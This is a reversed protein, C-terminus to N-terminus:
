RYRPAAVSQREVLRPVVVARVADAGPVELRHAMLAFAARGMLAKDVHLTTLSPTVLTALDIDDFGVVSLEAPIRIGVDRARRMFAVMSWDNAGFVATIETHSKVYEVAHLAAAEEFVYNIDIFHTRLGAAEIAQIYGTRRGQISPYCVPQTGLVAIDRHGLAIIHEVGARAGAVSDAVTSDLADDESYGDVLVIPCATAKLSRVSESDLNAGLVFAADVSGDRFAQPVDLLKREDNVVMTAHCFQARALTAAGVIAAAVPSYFHNAELGDGLSHHFAVALELPRGLRAQLGELPKYHAAEMADTVRRGLESGIHSDEALVLAVEGTSTGASAAIDAISVFHDRALLKGRRDLM